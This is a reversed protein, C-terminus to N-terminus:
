EDEGIISDPPLIEIEGYRYQKNIGNVGLITKIKVMHKFNWSVVVNCDNVSATALHVADDKCRSPVIGAEIYRNALSVIEDNLTATEFTIEKLYEYLAARKSEPCEDIEAIVLGSIYVDYQDQKIEDWLKLTSAMKEPVDDVQLHSIVSTDLYIRLKRM